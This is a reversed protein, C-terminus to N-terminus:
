YMLNYYANLGLMERGKLFRRGVTEDGGKGSLYDKSGEGSIGGLIL